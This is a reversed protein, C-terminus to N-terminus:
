FPMDEDARISEIVRRLTAVDEDSLHALIDILRADWGQQYADKASQYQRLLRANLDALAAAADQHRRAYSFAETLASRIEQVLANQDPDPLAKELDALTDLALLLDVNLRIFTDKNQSVIPTLNQDM